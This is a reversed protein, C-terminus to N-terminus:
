ARGILALADTNGVRVEVVFARLSECESEGEPSALRACVHLWREMDDRIALPLRGRVAFDRLVEPIRPLGVATGWGILADSAAAIEEARWGHDRLVEYAGRLRLAHLRVLESLFRSPSEQRALLADVDGEVSITRKTTIAM